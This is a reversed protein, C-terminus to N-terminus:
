MTQDTDIIPSLLESADVVGYKPGVRREEMLKPHGRRQKIHDGGDESLQPLDKTVLILFSLNSLVMNVGATPILEPVRDPILM